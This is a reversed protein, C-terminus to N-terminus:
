QVIPAERPDMEGLGPAPPRRIAVPVGDLHSVGSLADKVSPAASLLTNINVGGLDNAARWGGRHGYGHPYSVVGVAIKDTVEVPVTVTGTDTTLVVDDGSHVGIRHADGPNVYLAPSRNSGVNHMWSNISTLERRGILVLGSGPRRLNRLEDLVPREALHVKRDPYVIHKDAHGYVSDDPLLVGHPQQELAKISLGRRRLGFWDGVSSTRLLVDMMFRPTIRIGCRALLRVIRQGSAAGLGMRRAIQEFIWWEERVGPPADLVPQTAQLWPIPMHASFTLPVDARELFTPAPLIYDAQQASDNAYIDICVILDLRRMAEALAGGDPASLVPNGATIILARPSQRGPAEIEDALVWPMHGMM